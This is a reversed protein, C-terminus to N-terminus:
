PSKGKHLTLMCTSIRTGSEAFSEMPLDRFRGGHKKAWERFAKHKRTEGSEASAPLVSVLTGGPRLFEFGHVVHQIWHTGAFPPNMLVHSFRAIPTMNLFNRERVIVGPFFNRLTACREPHVEVATIPIDPARERIKVIIGGTGASPELVHAGDEHLWVDKLMEGAVAPPTPYFSLKALAGGKPLLGPEDPPMADGLVEGYFEALSENVKRVLDDRTFWLHANGNKFGRVRFYRTETYSQRPNFGGSRGDRMAALLEGPQPAVGDLVAFTREIDVITREIDNRCNFCGWQDFVCSLVIRSGIKFGDHSRFRRDLESFARAIGRLFILRADGALRRFTAEVNEPTVEPTDECLDHRFDEHATRDMLNVLGTVEILHTWVRADLHKRWMEVAGPKLEGRLSALLENEQRHDFYFVAGGHAHVAM